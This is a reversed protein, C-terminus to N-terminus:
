LTFTLSLTDTKKNNNDTQQNEEQAAWTLQVQYTKTVANIPTISPIGNPLRSSVRTMWNAVETHARQLAINTATVLARGADNSCDYKVDTCAVTVLDPVKPQGQTVKPIEYGQIGLANAKIADIINQMEGMAITRNAANNGYRNSAQLMSVTMALGIGIVLMSIVVEILTMGKQYKSPLNFIKM